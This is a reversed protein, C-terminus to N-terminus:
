GRLGSPMELASQLFPSILWPNFPNFPNLGSLANLGHGDQGDLENFNGVLNISKERSKVRSLRM